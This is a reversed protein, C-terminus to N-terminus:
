KISDMKEKSLSWKQLPTLDMFFSCRRFMLNFNKDNHVEWNELSMVDSISCGYFMFSFNNCKSVNWKELPKINSLKSCNKFMNSFSNCNSVNWNKLPEIDKLLACGHFMHSLNNCQSFNWNELAKIDSLSTCGEFMSSFNIGNSVDWNQLSKIDSLISCGQFIHSFDNVNKVDLLNLEDINKLCVCLYFMFSLNTLDNKIKVTVINEGTKLKYSNVLRHQEGNIILDINDFNNMVFNEGFINYIGSNKTFYGINISCKYNTNEKNTPNNFIDVNNDIKQYSNKSNIEEEYNNSINLNMKNVNLLNIKNNVNNIETKNNNIMIEIYKELEENIVNSIKNLNNDFNDFNFQKINLLENLQFNNELTFLSHMLEIKNLINNFVLLTKNIYNEYKKILENLQNNKEILENIKRDKIININENMKNNLKYENIQNMLNADDKRNEEYDLKKNWKEIPLENRCNPCSFSKNQSKCKKDWDKLCKDHFIKQCKYCFYPKENKIIISCLICNYKEDLIEQNSESLRNYNLNFISLGLNNNNIERIFLIDNIKNYNIDNNIKIESNNEDLVFIEYFESLNSFNLRILRLLEQYTKPKIINIEQKTNNSNDLLFVDLLSM